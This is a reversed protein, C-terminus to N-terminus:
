FGAVWVWGDSPRRIERLSQLDHLDANRNPAGLVVIHDGVKFTDKTVGIREVWSAGQWQVLYDTGDATRVQMLVHPNRFQIAQIDGEVYIRHETVYNAYGHHAQLSRGGALCLIGFALAALLTRSM